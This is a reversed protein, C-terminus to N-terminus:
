RPSDLDLSLSFFKNQLFSFDISGADMLEILEDLEASNFWVTGDISVDRDLADSYPQIIDGEAGGAALVAKGGRKL